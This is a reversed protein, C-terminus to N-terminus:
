GFRRPYLIGTDPRVSGGGGGGGDGGGNGGGVNFPFYNVDKVIPAEQPFFLGLDTADLKDSVADFDIVAGIADDTPGPTLLWPLKQSKWEEPTFLSYGNVSFYIDWWEYGEPVPSQGPHRQTQTIGSLILDQDETQKNLPDLVERQQSMFLQDNPTDSSYFISGIGDGYWIKDIM